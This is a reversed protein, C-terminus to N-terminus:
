PLSFVADASNVDSNSMRIETGAITFRITGDSEVIIGTEHFTMNLYQIKLGHPPMAELRLKVQNRTSRVELKPGSIRLDWIGTSCRWENQVIELEPIESIGFFKASIRPPADPAEPPEITFWEEGTEKRVICRIDRFRSNGVFLDFPDRFDFADRSFGQSFTIPSKRALIVREKSWIGRTIRDHCGGCLLAINKPDHAKAEAFPPDIHEYQAIALGCIVCGFGCEQRVLRRVSEPINRDLGYKNKTIQDGKKNAVPKIGRCSRLRCSEKLLLQVNRDSARKANEDLGSDEWLRWGRV